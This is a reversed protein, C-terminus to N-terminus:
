RLDDQDKTVLSSRLFRAGAGNQFSLVYPIKTSGPDISTVHSFVRLKQVTLVLSFPNSTLCEAASKMETSVNQHTAIRFLVAVATVICPQYSFSMTHVGARHDKSGPIAAERYMEAWRSTCVPFSIKNLLQASSCNLRWGRTSPARIGSGRPGGIWDPIPRDSPRGRASAWTYNTAHEFRHAM